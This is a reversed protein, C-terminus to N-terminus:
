VIFEQPIPGDKDTPFTMCVPEGCELCRNMIGVSAKLICSSVHENRCRYLPGPYDHWYDPAGMFMTRGSAAERARLKLM